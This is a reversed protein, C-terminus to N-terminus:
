AANAARIRAILAELVRRKQGSSLPRSNLSLASVTVMSGELTLVARWYEPEVQQGRAASADRLELLLAGDAQVVNAVTIDAAEGSRSLAARGPASRFFTTLAPLSEAFTAADPAGPLVSVTLVAPDDPQGAAPSGALAACTGFLVFAGEPGDRTAARDICYGTPGSVVVAGDAVAIARTVEAPGLAICGALGLPIGLLLLLRGIRASLAMLM